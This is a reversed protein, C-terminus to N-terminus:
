HSAVNSSFIDDYSIHNTAVTETKLKDKLESCTLINPLTDQDGCTLVEGSFDNRIGRVTRTRLALFTQINRSDFLPSEM